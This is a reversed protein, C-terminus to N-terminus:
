QAAQELLVPANDRVSITVQPTESPPARRARALTDLLLARGDRGRCRTRGSDLVLDLAVGRRLLASGLGAAYSVAREFSRPPLAPDVGLSLRADPRREPPAVVPFGRRASLRAHVWRRPDGPRWDRVTAWTGLPPGRRIWPALDPPRPPRPNPRVLLADQPLPLVARRVFLGLPGVAELAADGLRLEGRRLPLLELTLLPRAEPLLDLPAVRIPFGPQTLRLGRLARHGRYDVVYTVRFRRGVTAVAPAHRTVRVKSLPLLWAGVYGVGLAAWVCWSLLEHAAGPPRFATLSLALSFAVWGAAAPRPSLPRRRPPDARPSEGPLGAV